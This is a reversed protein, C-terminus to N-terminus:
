ARKASKAEAKKRGIQYMRGAPGKKSKVFYQPGLPALQGLIFNKITKPHTVGHEKAYIDMAYWEIAAGPALGTADLTAQVEKWGPIDAVRSPRPHKVKTLEAITTLRVLPIDTHPKHPTM